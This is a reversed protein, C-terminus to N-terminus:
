EVMDEPPLSRKEDIAALGLAERFQRLNVIAKSTDFTINFKPRKRRIPQYPFRRM